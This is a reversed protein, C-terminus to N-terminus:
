SLSFRRAKSRNTCNESIVLGVPDPIALDDAGGGIFHVVELKDGDNVPTTPYQSRPVIELNLEVAVKRPDIGLDNLLSDLNETGTFARKEGNVIIHSDM